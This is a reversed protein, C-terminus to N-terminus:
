TKGTNELLHRTAIGNVIGFLWASALLIPWLLGLNVGPMLWIKVVCIQSAIHALACLVSISVPSFYRQPLKIAVRLLLLSGITGCVSLVFGPTMFQGYLLATAFVRLLTIWVATAFDHRYMVYLTVVNAIGPKVGPLPSPIASEVLNLAIALAALRAIQHDQATTVITKYISPVKNKAKIM